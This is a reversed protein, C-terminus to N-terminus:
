RAGREANIRACSFSNCHLGKPFKATPGVRVEPWREGARAMGAFRAIFGAEARDRGPASRVATGGLPRYSRFPGADRTGAKRLAKSGKGFPVLPKAGSRAVFQSLCEMGISSWTQGARGATRPVVHTY